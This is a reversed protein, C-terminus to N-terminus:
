YKRSKRSKRSKKGHKKGHKKRRTRRKKKGGMEVYQGYDDNDDKQPIPKFPTQPIQRVTLSLPDTKINESTLTLSNELGSPPRHILSNRWDENIKQLPEQKVINSM